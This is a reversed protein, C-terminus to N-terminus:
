PRIDRIGIAVAIRRADVLKGDLSYDIRLRCQLIQMLLEPRTPVHRLNEVLAYRGATPDKTVCTRRLSVRQVIHREVVRGQLTPGEASMSHVGISLPRWGNFCM